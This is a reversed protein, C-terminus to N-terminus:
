FRACYRGVLFGVVLAIFAVLVTLVGGGVVSMVGRGLGDWNLM